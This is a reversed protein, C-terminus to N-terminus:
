QRCVRVGNTHQPGEDLVEDLPAHGHTSTATASTPVVSMHLSAFSRALPQGDPSSQRHSPTALLENWCMAAADELRSVAHAIVCSRLQVSCWARPGKGTCKLCCQCAQLSCTANQLSAARSNRRCCAATSCASRLGCIRELTVWADPAGFDHADPQAHGRCRRVSQLGKLRVHLWSSHGAKRCRSERPGIVPPMRSLTGGPGRM